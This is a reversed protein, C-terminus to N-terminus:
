SHPNTWEVKTVVGTVMITKNIDFESSFSHHALLAAPVVFSAALLITSTIKM